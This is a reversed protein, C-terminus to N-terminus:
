GRGRPDAGLGTTPVPIAPALENTPQGDDRPFYLRFTSGKGPESDLGIHGGAQRVIGYITALGLGTGKGVDKTTFFPEFIHARTALDMGTGTDSVSMVVYRGPNVEVHEAAESADILRNGTEITVTGGEPMADRANVVLNVLIQDLQGPDAQLYGTERDLHLALRVKEGILPQLM